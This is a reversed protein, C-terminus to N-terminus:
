RWCFELTDTYAHTHTHTHTHTYSVQDLLSPKTIRVGPVNDRISQRFINECM